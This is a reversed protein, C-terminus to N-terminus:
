PRSQTPDIRWECPRSFVAAPVAMVLIGIRVTLPAVIYGSSLPLISSVSQLFDRALALWRIVDAKM